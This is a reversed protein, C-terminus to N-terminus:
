NALPLGFKGVEHLGILRAGTLTVWIRMLLKRKRRREKQERKKSQWGKRKRCIQGALPQIHWHDELRSRAKKMTAWTWIDLLDDLWERSTRSELIGIEWAADIALYGLKEAYRGGRGADLGFRVGDAGTEFVSLLTTWGHHYSGASGYVIYWTWCQRGVGKGPTEGDAAGILLLSRFRM